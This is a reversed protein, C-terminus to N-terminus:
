EKEEKKWQEEEQTLWASYAMQLGSDTLYRPDRGPLANEEFCPWDETKQIWRLFSEVREYADHERFNYFVPGFAVDTTSCFMAAWNQEKDHLIQIGM